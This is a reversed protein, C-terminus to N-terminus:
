KVQQIQNGGSMHASQPGSPPEYGLIRVRACGQQPKTWGRSGGMPFHSTALHILACPMPWAVRPPRARQFVQLEPQIWQLRSVYHIPLPGFLFCSPQLPGTAFHHWYCEFQLLAVKCTPFSNAFGTLSHLDIFRCLDGDEGESQATARFASSSCPRTLQWLPGLCAAHM